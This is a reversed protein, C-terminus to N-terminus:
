LDAPDGLHTGGSVWNVITDIESQSLRRDNQFKGYRPDAFWPPMSREVVRKQIARSWPVVDAYTLLSMPGIDGPRHCSTCHKFLIPAVDRTFTPDQPQAQARAPATPLLIGIAFGVIGSRSLVGDFMSM